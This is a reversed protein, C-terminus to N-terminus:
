KSASKKNLEAQLAAVRARQDEPTSTAVASAAPQPEGAFKAKLSAVPISASANDRDQMIVAATTQMGKKTTRKGNAIIKTKLGTLLDRPSNASMVDKIFYKLDGATAVIVEGADTSLKINLGDPFKQSREIGVLFGEVTEGPVMKSLVRYAGGGGNLQEYAM